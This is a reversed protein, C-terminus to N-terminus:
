RRALIAVLIITVMGLCVLAGRWGQIEAAPPQHSQTALSQIIKRMLAQAAQDDESHTRLDLLITGPAVPVSASQAIAVTDNSTVQAVLVAVDHNNLRESYRGIIRMGQRASDPPDGPGGDAALRSITLYTNSQANDASGRVFLRSTEPNNAGGPIERFGEPLTLTFGPETIELPVAGAFSALLCLLLIIERM